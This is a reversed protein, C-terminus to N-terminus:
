SRIDLADAPRVEAIFLINEGRCLQRLAARTGSHRSHKCLQVARVCRRSM